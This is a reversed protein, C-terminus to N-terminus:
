FKSYNKKCLENMWVSNRLSRVQCQYVPKFRINTQHSTLFFTCEPLRWDQHNLNLNHDMIQGLVRELCKLYDNFKKVQEVVDKKWISLRRKLCIANKGRVLLIMANGLTTLESREMLFVLYSLPIQGLYKDFNRCPSSHQITSPLQYIIHYM